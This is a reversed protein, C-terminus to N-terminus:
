RFEKSCRNLPLPDKTQQTTYYHIQRNDYHNHTIYVDKKPTEIDFIIDFLWRFLYFGFIPLSVIIIILVM